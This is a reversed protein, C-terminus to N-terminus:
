SNSIQEFKWFHGLNQSNQSFHEYFRLILMNECYKLHNPSELLNGKRHYKTQKPLKLREFIIPPPAVGCWWMSKNQVITYCTSKSLQISFTQSKPIGIWETVIDTWRLAKILYPIRKLM